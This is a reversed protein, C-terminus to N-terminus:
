QGILHGIHDHFSSAPTLGALPVWRGATWNSCNEDPSLIRVQGEYSGYGFRVVSALKSAYIVWHDVELVEPSYAESEDTRCCAERVAKLQDEILAQKSLRVNLLSETQAEEPEAGRTSLVRGGCISDPVDAMGELYSFPDCVM